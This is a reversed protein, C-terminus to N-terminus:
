LEIQKMLSKGLQFFYTLLKYILYYNKNELSFTKKNLQM